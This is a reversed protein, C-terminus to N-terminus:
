FIISRNFFLYGKWLNLCQKNLISLIMSILRIKRALVRSGFIYGVRLCIPVAVKFHRHFSFDLGKSILM